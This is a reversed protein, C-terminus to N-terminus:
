SGIGFVGRVDTLPTKKSQIKELSKIYPITPFRFRQPVVKIFVLFCFVLTTFDPILKLLIAHMGFSLRQM